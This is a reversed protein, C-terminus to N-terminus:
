LRFAKPPPLRKYSDSNHIMTGVMKKLQQLSEIKGLTYCPVIEIYKIISDIRVKISFQKFCKTRRWEGATQVCYINFLDISQMQHYITDMQADTLSYPITTDGEVLDKKFTGNFTDLCDGVYLPDFTIKFAFNNPRTKPLNYHPDYPHIRLTDDPRPGTGSYSPSQTYGCGFLAFM